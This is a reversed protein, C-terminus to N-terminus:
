RPRPAATPVLAHIATADAKVQWARRPRDGPGSCSLASLLLLIILVALLVRLVRSPAPPAPLRM